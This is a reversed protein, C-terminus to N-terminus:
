RRFRSPRLWCSDAFWPKGRGNNSQAPCLVARGQRRERDLSTRGSQRPRKGRRQDTRRPSIFHIISSTHRKSYINWERPRSDLAVHGALSSEEFGVSRSETMALNPANGIGSSRPSIARCAPQTRAITRGILAAQVQETRTPRLRSLPLRQRLDAAPFARNLFAPGGRM